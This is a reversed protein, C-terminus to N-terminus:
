PHSVRQKSNSTDLFLLQGNQEQEVSLNIIHPDISNQLNHFSNIAHKKIISFVHDAFRFWKKPPTDTQYFALEENEEMCLNAVIPSVPSGMACYETKDVVVLCNGKNAKM